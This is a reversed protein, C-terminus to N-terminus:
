KGTFSPKRKEVFAGMGEKQDATAFLAHFLRRELRLGQELPLELATVDPQPSETVHLSAGANVAEKGAQVSIDGKSAIVDGIKVAEDVVNEGEAVCRSVLGWEEAQKGRITRGTLVMDMARNKGILHTLRQTGGAGPIIGLNIEPQGFSSKETCILIDCMM